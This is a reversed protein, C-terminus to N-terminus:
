LEAGGCDASYHCPGTQVPSRVTMHGSKSGVLMEEFAGARPKKIGEEGAGAKSFVRCAM